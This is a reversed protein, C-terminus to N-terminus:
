YSTNVEQKLLQIPARLNIGFHLRKENYYKLYKQIEARMTKPDKQLRDLCEEQITRNFRELHANDNPKRIRSHRHVIGANLSFFSSFEPGNDSQLHNFKFPAHLQAERLFRVSLGAGIKDTAVAYAWRSYVDLLTYVYM